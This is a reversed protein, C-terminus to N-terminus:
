KQALTITVGQEGSALRKAHFAALQDNPYHTVLADFAAASKPDNKQLLEFAQLYAAVAASAAFAHCAALPSTSERSFAAVPM